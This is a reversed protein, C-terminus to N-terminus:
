LMEIGNDRFDIETDFLDDADSCAIKHLITKPM